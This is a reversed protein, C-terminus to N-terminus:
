IPVEKLVGEQPWPQADHFEQSQSAGHESHLSRPSAKNSAHSPRTSSIQPKPAHQHTHVAAAVLAPILSVTQPPQGCHLASPYVRHYFSKCTEGKSPSSTGSQHRSMAGVRGAGGMEQPLPEEGCVQTNTALQDVAGVREALPHLSAGWSKHQSPEARSKDRAMNAVQPPTIRILRHSNSLAPLLLLPHEVKAHLRDLAATRATAHAKGGPPPSVNEKGGIVFRGGLSSDV